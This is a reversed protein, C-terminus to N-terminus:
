EHNQDNTNLDHMIQHHDVGKKRLSKFKKEDINNRKLYGRIDYKGQNKVKLKGEEVMLDIPYKTQTVPFSVKQNIRASEYMSMMIDLTTKAKKASGRHEPGGEIWNILENIQDANTKGGIPKINKEEEDLPVTEWGNTKSSFLSVKNESVNLMGKTGIVSFYGADNNFGTFEQDSLDSQIFLQSSNDLQVLGISSDEIRVDREYRDTNREVSGMVWIPKPDNLCFLVGDITHTAWNLLGQEVRIDILSVSGIEGNKIIERAKVWGPTFRRQHSIVLKCNNKDTVKIMESANGSGITMPKECIIGKAGIKAV